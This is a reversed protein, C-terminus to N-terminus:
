IHILSLALVNIVNTQMQTAKDADLLNSSNINLFKLLLEVGGTAVFKRSNPAHLSLLNTLACTAAEIIDILEEHTASEWSVRLITALCEITGAAGLREQNCQQQFAM